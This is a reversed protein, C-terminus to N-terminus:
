FTYPVKPTRTFFTMPLIVMLPSFVMLLLRKPPRIRLLAGPRAFFVPFTFHSRSQELRNNQLHLIRHITRDANNVCATRNYCTGIQRTDTFHPLFCDSLQAEGALDNTEATISIMCRTVTRRTQFVGYEYLTLVLQRAADARQNRNRNVIDLRQIVFLVVLSGEYLIDNQIVDQRAINIDLGALQVEAVIHRAHYEEHALLRRGINGRDVHYVAHERVLLLIEHQM